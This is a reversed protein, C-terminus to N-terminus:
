GASFTSVASKLFARDVGAREPAEVFNKEWEPQRPDAPTLLFAREVDELAADLAEPLEFNGLTVEVGEREVTSVYKPAHVLARTRVGLAALEEILASGITGTSGTFFIMAEEKNRGRWLLSISV